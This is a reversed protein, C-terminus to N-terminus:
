SLKKCHSKSARCSSPRLLKKERFTTLCRSSWTTDCRWLWRCSPGWIERLPWEHWFNGGGGQGRRLEQQLRYGASAAWLPIVSGLAASNGNSRLTAKHRIWCRRQTRNETPAVTEEVADLGARTGETDHTGPPYLHQLTFSVVGM